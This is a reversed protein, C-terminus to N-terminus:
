SMIVKHGGKVKFGKALSKFGCGIIEPRYEELASRKFQSTCKNYKRTM